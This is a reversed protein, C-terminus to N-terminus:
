DGGGRGVWGWVGERCSARGIEVILLVAGVLELIGIWWFGSFMETAPMGEMAPFGFVKMTGHQLFLLATVIRLISLLQPRYRGLLDSSCVDSSWDRSFRTHRRRS